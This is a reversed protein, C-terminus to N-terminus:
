GDSNSPLEVNQEIHSETFASTKIQYSGDRSARCLVQDTAARPPFEGIVVSSDFRQAVMQRAQQLNFNTIVAPIRNHSVTVFLRLM